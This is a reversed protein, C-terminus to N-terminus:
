KPEQRTSIVGETSEHLLCFFRKKSQQSLIRLRTLLREVKLAPFILAEDEL